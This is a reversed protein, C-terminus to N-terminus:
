FQFYARAREIIGPVTFPSAALFAYTARAATGWTSTYGGCTVSAGNTGVTASCYLEKPEGGSVRFCDQMSLTHM